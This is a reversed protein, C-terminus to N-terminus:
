FTEWHLVESIPKKNHPEPNEAPYGLPIFSVIELHEPINLIKKVENVPKGLAAVYCSGIGFSKAALMITQSAICCDEIYRKVKKDGCVVICAACDKIFDGWSVIMSIMKLKEKDTVVVFHWPQINLASPSLRAANIIEELINRDIQKDTYKRISRRSKIFALMDNM